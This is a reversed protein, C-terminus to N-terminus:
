EIKFKISVESEIRIKEFEIDIPLYKTQAVDSSSVEIGVVRSQLSNMIRDNIDSIYIANGLKQNLPELMAEAQSRGKSIAKSRLDLKLDEIKSYETRDLDVNSIGVEELGVLAQGASLADYALLSYAKSKLVDQQKLFYKKFNSGLDVLTLQEDLKFGILKLKSAMKNELEEVSVKGKTDRETILIKLYIRDPSVMTDVSAITEIYPMDIFNKEQAHVAVIAQLSFIAMLIQM